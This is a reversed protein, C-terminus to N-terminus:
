GTVSVATGWLTCSRALDVPLERDTFFTDIDGLSAIRAPATRAFKTHDAVLFTKRSQRLISQSVSVEQIDFDL